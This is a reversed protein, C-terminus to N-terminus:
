DPAFFDITKRTNKALLYPCNKNLNMGGPPCLSIMM